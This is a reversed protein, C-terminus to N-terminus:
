SPRLSRATSGVLDCFMVTLQRREAPSHQTSLALPKPSSPVKFESSQVSSTGTWVLIKGNEDIAVREAEILEEKLNELAADDLDFERKLAHYTIRSKSHLLASAQNVVESFKM